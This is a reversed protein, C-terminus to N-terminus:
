LTFICFSHLVELFRYWVGVDKFRAQLSYSSELLLSLGMLAATRSNSFSESHPHSRDVETIVDDLVAIPNIPAEAMADLIAADAAELVDPQNHTKFLSVILEQM